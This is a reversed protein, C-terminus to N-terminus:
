AQSFDHGCHKCKTAESKILEACAPCKKLHKSKLLYKEDPKSGLVILFGIIPSLILSLFCGALFGGSTGKGSGYVGVLVAGIVWLFIISM